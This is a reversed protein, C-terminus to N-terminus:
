GRYFVRQANANSRSVTQGKEEGMLEALAKLSADLGSLNNRLGEQGAAAVLTSGSCLLQRAPPVKKMLARYTGGAATDHTLEPRALVHMDYQLVVALEAEDQLTDAWILTPLGGEALTEALPALSRRHGIYAPIGFDAAIDLQLRLQAQQAKLAYPAYPEDLGLVGLAVLKPNGNLLSTLTDDLDQPDEVLTRPGFGTAGFLRPEAALADWVGDWVDPPAAVMGLTYPRREEMRLKVAYALIDNSEAALYGCGIRMRGPEILLAWPNGKFPSPKSAALDDDPEDDYSATSDDGVVAVGSAASPMMDMSSTEHARKGGKAHSEPPTMDAYDQKVERVLDGVEQLISGFVGTKRSGDPPYGNSAMNPFFRTKYPM